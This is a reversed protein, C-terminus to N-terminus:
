NQLVSSKIATIRLPLLQSISETAPPESVDSLSANNNTSKVWFILTAKWYFSYEFQGIYIVAVIAQFIM